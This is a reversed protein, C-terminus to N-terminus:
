RIKWEKVNFYDIREWYNERQGEDKGNSWVFIYELFMIDSGWKFLETVIDILEETSPKEFGDMEGFDISAIVYQHLKSLQEIAEKYSKIKM